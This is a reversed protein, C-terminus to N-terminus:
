KGQQHTADIDIPVLEMSQSQQQMQHFTQGKKEAQHQRLRIDLVQAANV